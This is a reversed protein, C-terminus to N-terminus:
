GLPNLGPPAETQEVGNLPNVNDKSCAPLLAILLVPVWARRLHLM